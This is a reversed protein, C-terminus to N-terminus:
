EEKGTRIVIYDPRINGASPQYDVFFEEKDYSLGYHAEMYELDPPFFGELAYCAMICRELSDQLSAEQERLRDASFRDTLGAFVALLAATLLASLVLSYKRFLSIM